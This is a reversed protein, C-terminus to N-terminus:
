YYFGFNINFRLHFKANPDGQAFADTWVPGLWAQNYGLAFDVYTYIYGAQFLAGTVNMVSSGFESERKQIIGFDNYVTIRDLFGRKILFGYATSVTYLEGKSAVNYPAGYAGMEIVNVYAISDNPNIAYTAVQGKLTFQGFQGEYALAFANHNGFKKTVLNYLGGVMVSASISSNNTKGFRYKFKANGQHVEKNRGTVDYSYRSYSHPSDNGFRLEEANKFYALQLEYKETNRLYKIGMDHDDELGIYYSINFFWNNSNYQQIGFPVQTLGLHLSNISDIEYGIWGQKLMGGGFDTSYFRYEADLHFGKYAVKANVRFLDYGFDGGRSMQDPKWTSLNYNFRLAGGIRVQPKDQALLAKSTSMILSSFLLIIFIAPHHAFFLKARQIM